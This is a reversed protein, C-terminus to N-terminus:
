RKPRFISTNKQKSRTFELAAAAAKAAESRKAAEDEERKREEAALDIELTHVSATGASVTTEAYSKTEPEPQEDEQEEASASVDAHDDESAVEPEITITATEEVVVTDSVHPEAEELGQEEVIAEDTELESEPEPEQVVQARWDPLIPDKPRRPSDLPPPAASEASLEGTKLAKRFSQMEARQYRLALTISELQAANAEIHEVLASFAHEAMRGAAEEINDQRDQREREMTDVRARLAVIEEYDSQAISRSSSREASGGDGSTLGLMISGLFIIIGSADMMWLLPSQKQVNMWDQPNTSSKAAVFTAASVLIGALLTGSLFYLVTRIRM